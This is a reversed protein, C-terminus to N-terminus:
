ILEDWKFFLEAFSEPMEDVDRVFQLYGEPIAVVGHKHVETVICTKGPYFFENGSDAGGVHYQSGDKMRVADGVMVEIM